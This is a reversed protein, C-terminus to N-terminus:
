LQAVCVLKLPSKLAKEVGNDNIKAIMLNSTITHGPTVTVVVSGTIQATIIHEEGDIAVKFSHGAPVVDYYTSAYNNTYGLVSLALTLSGTKNADSENMLTAGQLSEDAFLKNCIDLWPVNSFTMSLAELVDNSSTYTGSSITVACSGADSGDVVWYGNKMTVNNSNYDSVITKDGQTDDDVSCSVLMVSALVVTFLSLFYTKYAKNM